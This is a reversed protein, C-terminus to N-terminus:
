ELYNEDIYIESDAVFNSGGAFCADGFCAMFEHMQLYYYGTEKDVKHVYNRYNFYKNMINIGYETPVFYVYSNLNFLKLNKTSM